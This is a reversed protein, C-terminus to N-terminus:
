TVMKYILIIGMVVLSISAQWTLPILKFVIGIILVFLSGITVGVALFDILVMIVVVGLLFLPFLLSIKQNQDTFLPNLDDGLVASGLVFKNEAYAINIIVLLVLLYIAKNM